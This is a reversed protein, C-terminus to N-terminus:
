CHACDPHERFNEYGVAALDGTADHLGGLTEPDFRDSDVGFGVCFREVDLLGVLGDQDARGGHGLAVEFGVGVKM